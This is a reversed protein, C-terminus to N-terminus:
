KNAALGLSKVLKANQVMSEAVVKRFEEPGRLVIETAQFAMGKKVDPTAMTKIVGSHVKAAIARPTGKPVFFGMWGTYDFGPLTDAIPPITPLLSTRKPLTHALPRMRGASIHGM